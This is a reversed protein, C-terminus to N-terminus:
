QEYTRSRQRCQTHRRNRWNEHKRRSPRLPPRHHCRVPPWSPSPPCNEDNCARCKTQRAANHRAALRPQGRPPRGCKHAAGWDTGRPLALTPATDARAPVTRTAPAPAPAPRFGSFCVGPLAPRQQQQQALSLSQAPLPHNGHQDATGDGRGVRTGNREARPHRPRLRRQLLSAAGPPGARARTRATRGAPHLRPQWPM